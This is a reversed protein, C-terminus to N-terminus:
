GLLDIERGRELSATGREYGDAPRGRGLRLGGFGKGMGGIYAMEVFHWCPYNGTGGIGEPLGGM